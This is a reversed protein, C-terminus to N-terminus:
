KSKLHKILYADLEDDEVYEEEDETEIEDVDDYDIEEDPIAEEEDEEKLSLSEHLGESLSGILSDYTDQGVFIDFHVAKLNLNEREIDFVYDPLIVKDLKQENNNILCDLNFVEADEESSDEPVLAGDMFEIERLGSDAFAGQELTKINAPVKFSTLQKNKAYLGTMITDLYPLM